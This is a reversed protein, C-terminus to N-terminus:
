PTLDTLAAVADWGRTVADARTDHAPDISALQAALRGAFLPAAFSTGSWLAFRGTYDDPDISERSATTSTARACGAAAWGPVAAAYEDGVRRPALGPGLPRRQQVPCRHREPQAREVAVIPVANPDAPVITSAPDPWPCWAAPFVPRDTADNGASCVVAVGCKGLDSLIDSMTPDFLEDEPTEHYYGLSLSLM